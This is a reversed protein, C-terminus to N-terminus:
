QVGEKKTSVTMAQTHKWPQNQTHSTLHATNSLTRRMMLLHRLRLYTRTQISDALSGQRNGRWLPGPPHLWSTFNTNCDAPHARFSRQSRLDGLRRYIAFHTSRILLCTQTNVDAVCRPTRTNSNPHEERRCDRPTSRKRRFPALGWAICWSTDYDAM